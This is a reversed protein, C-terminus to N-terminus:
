DQGLAGVPQWQARSQPAPKIRVVKHYGQCRWNSHENAADVKALMAFSYLMVLKVIPCVLAWEGDGEVRYGSWTQRAATQYATEM